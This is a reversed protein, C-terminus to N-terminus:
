PSDCDDLCLQGDKVAQTSCSSLSGSSLHIHTNVSWLTDNNVDSFLSQTDQLGSSFFINRYMFSEFSSSSADWELQPSCFGCYCYCLAAPPSVRQGTTRFVVFCFLSWDYLVTGRERDTQTCRAWGRDCCQHETFCSSFFILVYSHFDFM